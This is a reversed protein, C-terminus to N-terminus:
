YQLTSHNLNPLFCPSRTYVTSDPFRINQHKIIFSRHSLSQFATIAYGPGEQTSYSGVQFALIFFHNFNLSFAPFHPFNSSINRDQWGPTVPQSCGQQFTCTLYVQSGPNPECVPHYRKNTEKNFINHTIFSTFLKLISALNLSRTANSM